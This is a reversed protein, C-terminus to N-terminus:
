LAPTGTSPAPSPVRTRPDIQRQTTPLGTAPDPTSPLGVPPQSLAPLATLMVAALALAVHRAHAM